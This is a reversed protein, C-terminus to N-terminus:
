VVVFFLNILDIRCMFLVGLVKFKNIVVFFIRYEDKIEM